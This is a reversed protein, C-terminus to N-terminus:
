RCKAMEEEQIENARKRMKEDNVYEKYKESLEEKLKDREDRVKELEAKAAENGNMLERELQRQKCIVRAMKRGDKEFDSSSRSAFIFGTSAFLFILKITKM